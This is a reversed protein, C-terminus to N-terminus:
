AATIGRTLKELYSTLRKKSAILNGSDGGTNGIPWRGTRKLYYIDTDEPM